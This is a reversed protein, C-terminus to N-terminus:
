SQFDSVQHACLQVVLLSASILWDTVNCLNLFYFFLFTSILFWLPYSWILFPRWEGPTCCLQVASFTIKRELALYIEEIEICSINRWNWDWFLFRGLKFKLTYCWCSWQLTSCDFLEVWSFWPIRETTFYEVYGKLRSVQWRSATVKVLRPLWDYKSPKEAYIEPNIYHQFLCCAWRVM